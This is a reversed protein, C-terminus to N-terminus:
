APIQPVLPEDAFANMVTISTVSSTRYVLNKAFRDSLRCGKQPIGEDLAITIQVGLAM